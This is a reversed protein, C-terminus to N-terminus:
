DGQLVAGVHAERRPVGTFDDDVVLAAASRQSRIAGTAFAAMPGLVRQPDFPVDLLLAGYTDLLDRCYRLAGEQLEELVRLEDSSRHDSRFTHVPRGDVVETRETQGHPATLFAELVLSHRLFTSPTQWDPHGDIFCGYAWGGGEQVQGVKAFTGMYFGTLGRGAVTQLHKQITGSYGIDVLGPNASGTLGVADLYDTVGRLEDRAHAVLDGELSRLIERIDDRDAPLDVVRRGLASDPGVSFGLRSSLLDHVTGHFDSGELVAEPDFQVAQAASMASRRSTLLYTSPPLSSGSETRLLEWAAHLVYGERSLFYLRDVTALEPHRALWILFGMVVPGFVAYGLDTPRPVDVPRYRGTDPYPGNGLLAVAPGLLLDDGWHEVDRAVLDGLGRLELLPVPNMCHFTDIGRDVAAQIDSHENDGIHLWTGARSREARRVVEWLDGRDKRAGRESSLYLEDIHDLVGAAKLLREIEPRELYTDSMAIVRKGMQDARALADTMAVRPVSVASELAVETSRAAEVAESTWAGDVPFERYIETLTVDGVWGKRERAATEAEKRREFFGHAGAFAREVSTGVARQVSDPRVSSRTLLTDFIDFSVLDAREIAHHLREPSFDLYQDLNLASWDLHFGGSPRDYEVYRRGSAHVLPVLCREIAHALTGDTQGDEAPFDDFTFQADLLPRIADVRAWFMGGVPYPFYGERPYEEVGLRAFLATVHHANGLWHHAWYSLTPITQPFVIGVDTRSDLLDLIARVNAPPGVLCDVLEYRWESREGGTYLSKKTHLHLLLDHTAISSAFEAVLPGFNRGRNPCIRVDLGCNLGHDRVSREVSDRVEPTPVSVLLSYPVPISALSTCLEAFTDPYFAHVMVAVSPPDPIHSRLNVRVNERGAPAPVAVTSATRGESSPARLFHLLPNVGAARVDPYRGLYDEGDFLPGPNRGHRFGDVLYDQLPSAPPRSPDPSHALYWSEDFFGSAEIRALARRRRVGSAPAVPWM